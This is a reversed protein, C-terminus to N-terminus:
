YKHGNERIKNVKSFMDEEKWFNKVKNEIKKHDYSKEAEKIPM